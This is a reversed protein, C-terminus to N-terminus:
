VSRGQYQVPLHAPQLLPPLNCVSEGAILIGNQQTRVGGGVVRGGVSMVNVIVTMAVMTEAAHLAVMRVELVVLM